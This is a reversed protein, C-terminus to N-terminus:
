AAYILLKKTSLVARRPMIGYAAYHESCWLAMWKPFSTTPPV